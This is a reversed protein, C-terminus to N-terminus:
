KHLFHLPIDCKFEDIVLVTILYIDSNNTGNTSDMCTDKGFRALVEKQAKTMTVLHLDEEQFYRAEDIQAQQKFHLVPMHDLDNKSDM